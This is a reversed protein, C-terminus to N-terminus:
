QSRDAGWGSSVFKGIISFGSDSTERLTLPSLPAEALGLSILAHSAESLARGWIESMWSCWMPFSSLWFGALPFPNSNQLPLEKQFWPMGSPREWLILTPVAMRMSLAVVGSMLSWPMRTSPLTCNTVRCEGSLPSSVIMLTYAEWVEVSLARRQFLIVWASKVDSWMMRPPSKLWKSVMSWSLVGPVLLICLLSATAQCRIVKLYPRVSTQSRSLKWLCDSFSNVYSLPLAPLFDATELIFLIMIEWVTSSLPPLISTAAEILFSVSWEGTQM